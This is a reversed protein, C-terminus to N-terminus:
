RAPRGPARDLMERMTRRVLQLWEVRAQLQKIEAVRQLVVKVENWNANAGLVAAPDASGLERLYTLCQQEQGLTQDILTPLFEPGSLLLKLDLVQRAPAPPSPGFLWELHYDRGEQTPEYVARPSGRGARQSGTDRALVHHDRELQQLAGYVGSREWGWAGFREELRQALDYGYGPREIVLGLVAHKASM